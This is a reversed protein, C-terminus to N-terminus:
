GAMQAPRPQFGSERSLPFSASFRSFCPLNFDGMDASFLFQWCRHFPPAEAEENKTESNQLKRYTHNNVKTKTPTKTLGARFPNNFCYYRTNRRSMARAYKASQIPHSPL